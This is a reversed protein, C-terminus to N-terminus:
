KKAIKKAVRSKKVPNKVKKAEKAEELAANKDMLLKVLELLRDIVSELESRTELADALAQSNKNLGKLYFAKSLLFIGSFVIAITITIQLDTM